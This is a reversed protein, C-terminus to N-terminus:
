HKIRNRTNEGQHEGGDRDGGDGDDGCAVADNNGGIARGGDPIREEKRGKKRRGVAVEEGGRPWMGSSPATCRVGVVVPPYILIMSTGSNVSEQCVGPRIAPTNHQLQPHKRGKEVIDKNLGTL